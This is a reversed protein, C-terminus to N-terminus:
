GSPTPLSSRSAMTFARCITVCFMNWYFLHVRVARGAGAASYIEACSPRSYARHFARHAALPLPDEGAAVRGFFTFPQHSVPFPHGPDIALPTVIPYLTRQFFQELRQEQEGTMEELRVLHIGEASLQPLVTDLFCLHQEETLEHVRRSIARLIADPAVGDTDGARDGSAQRKLGAVRVMFFEDLNSSFIALFKVRELLPVSPDKAEELVRRNFELWSLDRNILLEQQDRM